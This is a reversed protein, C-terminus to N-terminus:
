GAKKESKEKEPAPADVLATKQAAKLLADGSYSPIRFHVDQTSAKLIYHDEKRHKALRYFVEEGGKRVLTLELKPDDLGYDPNAEPGLVRGIRVSSWERTLSEAGDPKFAEDEALGAALWSRKKPAATEGKKGEKAPAEAKERTLTLGHVRVTEVETEPIKLIAKDEWSEAKAPAEYASFPVSFVADDEHSRAHIRRMGPSTGLFVTHLADDGEVLTIRREFAGDDVKFRKLAGGTVAVPPGHKLEKLRSILSEVKDQDAPFGWHDPLVWGKEGKALATKEGEPGEITLKEVTKGELDILPADQTRAELDPGTVGLLIALGLQAALLVTLYRIWKEM